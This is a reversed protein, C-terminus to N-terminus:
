DELLVEEEQAEKLDDEFMDKYIDDTTKSRSAVIRFGEGAFSQDLSALDEDENLVADDDYQSLFADIVFASFVNVMILVGVVFWSTFYVVGAGKFGAVRDLAQNFEDFPGGAVIMALLPGFGMSFDNFNLIDFHADLYDTDELDPNGDYILGGFCQVAFSNWLSASAFVVGVVGLSAPVINVICTGILKFNDLNVLFNVLRLLRVITFYHLIQTSVNTWPCIWYLAVVFLLVTVTLDFRNTPSLWFEDFPTVLLQAALAAFYFISFFFEVTGWIMEDMHSETNALDQYSQVLVLFVNFVLVGMVSKQVLRTEHVHHAIFHYWPHAAIEPHYLEAYTRTAVRKFSYQLIDCVDYFEQASITGSSDDDMVSFFWGLTGPTVTPVREVKNTEEVLAAFSERTVVKAAGGGGGGTPTALLKFAAALGKARNSYIEKYRHKVFASYENYVVALLLNLFLFVTVMAFLFFFIGFFRRATYAPLTADPWTATTALGFTTYMADSFTEFGENVMVGSHNEYRYDDFTIAALWGFFVVALVFLGLVNLFAPVLLVCARMSTYVADISVCLLGVRCYPAVRFWPSAGFLIALTFWALDIAYTGVFGIRFKLKLGVKPEFETELVALFALYAVCAIEVLITLGVPFYDTGSLYAHGPAECIRHGNQWVFLGKRNALCWGPIETFSVLMLLFVCIAREPYQMNEFRVYLNRRLPTQKEIGEPDFKGVMAEEVLWAAKEVNSLTEGVESPQEITLQSVSAEGTTLRSSESLEM